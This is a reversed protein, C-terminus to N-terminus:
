LAPESDSHVIPNLSLAVSITATNFHTVPLFYVWPLLCLFFFVSMLPFVFIQVFFKVVVFFFDTQFMLSSNPVAALAARSDSLSARSLPFVRKM